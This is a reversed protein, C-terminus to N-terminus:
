DIYILDFEGVVLHTIHDTRSYCQGNEHIGGDFYDYVITIM